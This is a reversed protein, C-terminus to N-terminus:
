YKREWSYAQKHLLTKTIGPLSLSLPLSLMLICDSWTHVLSFVMYFLVNNLFPYVDSYVNTQFNRTWVAIYRRISYFSVFKLMCWIEKITPSWWFSKDVWLKTFCPTSWARIIHTSWMPHTMPFVYSSSPGHSVKKLSMCISIPSPKQTLNQCSMYHLSWLRLCM